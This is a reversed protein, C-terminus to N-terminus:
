LNSIIDKQIKLFEEESLKLPEKKFDLDAESKMPILHIHAHNVELGMVGMGVKEVGFAGKLGKAVKKAFVMLGGLEEDEIDFIYGTEKKPIVLTHGKAMPNIDLFAFYREDELIKYSPIEGQAIRSFISAM